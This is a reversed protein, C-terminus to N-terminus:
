ETHISPKQEFPKSIKTLYIKFNYFIYNGKERELLRVWTETYLKNLAM